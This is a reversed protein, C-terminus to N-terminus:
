NIGETNAKQDRYESTHCNSAQSTATAATQRAVDNTSSTTEKSMQKLYCESNIHKFLLLCVYFLSFSVPFVIRILRVPENESPEVNQVVECAAIEAIANSGCGCRGSSIQIVGTHYIISGRRWRKRADRAALENRQLKAFIGFRRRYQISHLQKLWFTKLQEPRIIRRAVVVAVALLAM